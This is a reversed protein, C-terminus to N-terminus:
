KAPLGGVANRGFAAAKVHPLWNQPLVDPTRYALNVISEIDQDLFVDNLFQKEAFVINNAGSALKVWYKGNPNTDDSIAQSGMKERITYFYAQRIETKSCHDVFSKIMNAIDDNTKNRQVLGYMLYQDIKKGTKKTEIQLISNSGGADKRIGAANCRNMAKHLTLTEPPAFIPAFSETKVAHMWMQPKHAWYQEQGDMLKFAYVHYRAAPLRWRLVVISTGGSAIAAAFASMMSSHPQDISGVLASGCVVPEFPVADDDDDDDIDDIVPDVKGRFARNGVPEGDPVNPAAKLKAPDAYNQIMSVYKRCELECDYDRLVLLQDIEPHCTVLLNKADMAQKRNSFVSFTGLKLNVMYVPQVELAVPGRLSDPTVVSASINTPTIEELLTDLEREYPSDTNKPKSPTVVVVDLSEVTKRPDGAASVPVSMSNDGIKDVAINAVKATVIEEGIGARKRATVMKFIKKEECSIQFIELSRM